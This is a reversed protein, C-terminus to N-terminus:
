SNMRLTFGLPAVTGAYSTVSASVRVATPDTPDIIATVNSIDKLIEAPDLSQVTAQARQVTQMQTLASLVQTQIDTETIQISIKQGIYAKLLCIFNPYFPCTSTLIWKLAKQALKPNQTIHMFGTSSPKLDNLTGLGSCKLCYQQRTIYSVEILPIVLRVPKNFVVKYFIDTTGLRNDDKLLQWGYTPDNQFIEEGAIWIEIDSGNIPARFNIATNSAYNLTRFDIQNVVYREFSIAHDCAGIPTRNSDLTSVNYDFSM